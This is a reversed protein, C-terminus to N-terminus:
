KKQKSPHCIFIGIVFSFLVGCILLFIKIFFYRLWSFERYFWIRKDNYKKKTRLFRNTFEKSDTIFVVEKNNKDKFLFAKELGPVKGQDKVQVEKVFVFDRSQKEFYITGSPNLLDKFLFVAICLSCIISFIVWIKLRRENEKYIVSKGWLRGRQSM